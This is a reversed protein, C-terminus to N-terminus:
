NIGYELDMYMLVTLRQQMLNLVAGLFSVLFNIVLINNSAAAAFWIFTTPIAVLFNFLLITLFIPGKHGSTAKRSSKFADIIGNGKDVIYCTNFIYMIYIIVLPVILIFLLIGVIEPIMIFGLTVAMTVLYTMSSAIIKFLNGVVLKFCDGPSYNEGKLDKVYATLYVASALYTVTIVLLNAALILYKDDPVFFAVFSTFLIFVFILRTLSESKLEYFKLAKLLYASLGRLKRTGGGNEM